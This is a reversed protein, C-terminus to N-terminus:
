QSAREISPFHYPLTVPPDAKHYVWDTDDDSRHVLMQGTLVLELIGDNVRVEEAWKTFALLTEEAVGVGPRKKAEGIMLAMILNATEEDSLFQVDEM